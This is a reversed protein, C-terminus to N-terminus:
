DIRNKFINKKRKEINQNEKIIKDEDSPKYIRKLIFYFFYPTWVLLTALLIHLWYDRGPYKFNLFRKLFVLSFFYNFLSIGISVLNFIKFTQITLYLNLIELLILSTFSCVYLERYDRISNMLYTMLGVGQFISIFIIFSVNSLNNQYKSINKYLIPYNLCQYQHIDNDTYLSFIYLGTFVTSYSTMVIGNYFEFSAYGFTNIFTLLVSSIILGRHLSFRVIKSTNMFFNRGHWLLIISLASFEQVSVDAAMSAQQGEKGVIGFGVNSQRIMSVDNGGDGIAAVVRKCDRQM